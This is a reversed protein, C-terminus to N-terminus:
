KKFGDKDEKKEQESEITADILAKTIEAWNWARRHPDIHAKVVSPGSILSDWFKKVDVLSM